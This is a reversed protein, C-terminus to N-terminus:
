NADAVNNVSSLRALQQALQAPTVYGGLQTGDDALIAPTGNIGMKTAISNIEAVPNPCTKPPLNAGNMADTYARHRDKSCWVTIAKKDAGPHIALPFFVYDVAIGLRNYEAIQKHFHRCYPCDVDTFVTVHYKPHSPAFTLREQAPIRALWERRVAAMSDDALDRRTNLNLVHGEILYKGDKSVFVAHGDVVVAYFGPLPSASVSQVQVRPAVKHLVQEVFQQPGTAARSPLAVAFLAIFLIRYM